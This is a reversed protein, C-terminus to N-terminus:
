LRTRTRVIVNEIQIEWPIFGREQLFTQRFGSQVMIRGLISPCVETGDLM